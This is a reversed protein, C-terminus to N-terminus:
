DTKHHLDEKWGRFLSLLNKTEKDFSSKELLSIMWLAYMELISVVSDASIIMTM